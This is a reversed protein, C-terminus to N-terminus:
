LWVLNCILPIRYTSSIPLPCCVRKRRMEEYQRESATKGDDGRTELERLEAQDAEEGEKGEGRGMEKGASADEDELAKQLATKSSQAETEKPKPKKKKNKSIGAPKSGKLKLGGRVIPAYEDSPM